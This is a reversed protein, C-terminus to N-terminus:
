KYIARLSNCVDVFTKFNKYHIYSSFNLDIVENKFTTSVMDKNLHTITVTQKNFRQTINRFSERDRQVIRTLALSVKSFIRNGIFHM